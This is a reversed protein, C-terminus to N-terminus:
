RPRKMTPRAYKSGNSAARWRAGAPWASRSVFTLLRREPSGDKALEALFLASCAPYRHDITSDHTLRLPFASTEVVDTM